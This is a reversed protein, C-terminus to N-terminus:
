KDLRFEAFARWEGKLWRQVGVHGLLAWAGQGHARQGIRVESEGERGRGGRGRLVEQAQAISAKWTQGKTITTAEAGEGCQTNACIGRGVLWWLFAWTFNHPGWARSEGAGGGKKKKQKSGYCKDGM